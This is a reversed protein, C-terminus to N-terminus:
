LRIKKLAVIPDEGAKRYPETYEAKYVVGYTGEGLKDIKNFKAGIEPDGSDVVESGPIAKLREQEYEDFWM